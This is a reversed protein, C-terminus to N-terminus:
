KGEQGPLVGVQTHPGGCCQPWVRIYLRAEEPLEEYQLIGGHLTDFVCMM